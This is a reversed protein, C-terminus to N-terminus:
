SKYKTSLSVMVVVVETVSLITLMASLATKVVRLVLATGPSCALMTAALTVPGSVIPHGGANILVNKWLIWM